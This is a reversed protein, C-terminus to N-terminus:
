SALADIGAELEPDAEFVFPDAAGDRRLAADAAVVGAASWSQRLRAQSGVQLSTRGDYYEPW